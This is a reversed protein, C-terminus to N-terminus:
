DEGESGLVQPHVGGGQQHEFRPQESHPLHAPCLRDTSCSKKLNAESLGMFDYKKNRANKVSSSRAGQELSM